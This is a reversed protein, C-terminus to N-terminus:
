STRRAATRGGPVSLRSSADVPRDTAALASTTDSLQATESRAVSVYVIREVVRETQAPATGAATPDQSVLRVEVRPTSDLVLYQLGAFLPVLLALLGFVRLRAGFGFLHHDSAGILRARNRRQADLM